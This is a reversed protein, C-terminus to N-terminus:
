LCHKSEPVAGNGVDAVDLFQLYSRWIPAAAFPGEKILASVRHRHDDLRGKIPKPVCARRMAVQSVARLADGIGLAFGQSALSDRAIGADGM